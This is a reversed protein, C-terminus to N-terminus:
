EAESDYFGARELEREYFWATAILAVAAFLDFMTAEQM